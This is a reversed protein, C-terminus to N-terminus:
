MVLVLSLIDNESGVRYKAEKYGIPRFLISGDTWIKLVYISSNDNSNSKFVLNNNDYLYTDYLAMIDGNNREKIIDDGFASNGFNFPINHEGYKKIIDENIEESESSQDYQENNEPYYDIEDEESSNDDLKLTDRVKEKLLFREETIKSIKVKSKNDLINYEGSELYPINCGDVNLQYTDNIYLNGYVDFTITASQSTISDTIINM